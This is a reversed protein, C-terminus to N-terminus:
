AIRQSISIGDRLPVITSRLRADNLVLRTFERIGETAPEHNEADTVKGDRLINDALLLGGVKLKKMAEEFAQPYAAKDIDLFILDFPGDTERLSQIADGQHFVVKDLTGARTLCERAKKINEESSDTHHLVGNEPLVRTFWVASYGYGSGMEFVTETGALGALLQMLRGMQRDVIPFKHEHAYDEMEQLLADDPDLATNLYKQVLDNTIEM